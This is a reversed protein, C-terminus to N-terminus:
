HINVHLLAIHNTAKKLRFVLNGILADYVNQDRNYFEYIRFDQM